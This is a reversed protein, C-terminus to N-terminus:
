VYHISLCPFFFLLFPYPFCFCFSEILGLL